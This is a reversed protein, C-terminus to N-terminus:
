WAVRRKWLVKAFQFILGALYLNYMACLCTGTSWINRVIGPRSDAPGRWIDARFKSRLRIVIVAAGLYIAVLMLGVSALLLAGKMRAFVLDFWGLALLATGVLAIVAARPHIYKHRFCTLARGRGYKFHQKILGLLTSRPWYWVRIKSSVYVVERSGAGLALNLESDQNTINQLSFPGSHLRINLESDENVVADSRYGGIAMLDKRWFCGLFVTEAYGNYDEDRHKANGRGLASCAALAVGAQFPSKAVFRPAGGVNRAKTRLIESVCADIYDDAYLSHADARIFLDANTSNIGINLAHSQYRFPNEVLRIRPDSVACELVVERTRDTSNGDIVLIDIIAPYQSQSFARLAIGIYAEENFTPIAIAVTPLEGRRPAQIANRLHDDRADKMTGPM